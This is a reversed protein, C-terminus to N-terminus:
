INYEISKGHMDSIKLMNRVLVYPCINYYVVTYIYHLCVDM